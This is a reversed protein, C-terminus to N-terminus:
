HCPGHRRRFDRPLEPRDQRFLGLRNARALAEQKAYPGTQRRFRYSWAHGREVMWAGVDQGRFHVRALARGHEDHRRVRVQVTQGLVLGTLAARATDGHAQCIEPADIGDLRVRRPAGGQHPRVWFTDGDGVHTVRGQWVDRYSRALASVAWFCLSLAVLAAFLRGRLLGRPRAMAMCGGMGGNIAGAWPAFQAGTPAM